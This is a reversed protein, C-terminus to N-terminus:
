GMVIIVEFTETGTGSVAINKVTSSIDPNLDHGYHIWEQGALLRQSWNAGGLQYANSGGQAFTMPNTGTNKFKIVQVKLGTGDVAVGNTGVLATLDLTKAGAVLAFQNACVKTAPVTTSPTLTGSSSFKDHTISPNQSGPASDLEETVSCKLAYSATTVPM